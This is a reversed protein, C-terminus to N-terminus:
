CMNLDKTRQKYPQNAQQEYQIMILLCRELLFYMHVFFEYLLYRMQMM